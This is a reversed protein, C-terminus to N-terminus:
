RFRCLCMLNKVHGIVLFVRWTAPLMNLGLLIRKEVPFVTLILM